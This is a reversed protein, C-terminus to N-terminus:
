MPDVDVTYMSKRHTKHVKIKEVEEQIFQKAKALDLSGRELKILIDTLFLNRIRNIGPEEPGLVRHQLKRRLQVALHNASDM